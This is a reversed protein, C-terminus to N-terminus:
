TRKRKPATKKPAKPKPPALEAATRTVLECLFDSDECRDGSVLFYPKAGPYPPQENPKALLARGAATPKVFLEDDCFLAVLKDRYYIAFEGFMRRASVEGLEALQEVVFDVREQKSGM